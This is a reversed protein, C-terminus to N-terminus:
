NRISIKNIHDLWNIVTQDNQLNKKKEIEMWISELQNISDYLKQKLEESM